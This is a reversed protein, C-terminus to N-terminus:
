QRWYSSSFIMLPRRSLEMLTVMSQRHIERSGRTPISYDDSTFVVTQSCGEKRLHWKFVSVV